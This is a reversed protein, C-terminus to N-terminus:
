SCSKRRTWDIGDGLTSGIFIQIERTALSRISSIISGSIEISRAISINRLSHQSLHPPAQCCEKKQGQRSKGYPPLIIWIPYVVSAVAEHLFGVGKYTLGPEFFRIRPQQLLSQNFLVALGLDKIVHLAHAVAAPPLIRVLFGDKLGM